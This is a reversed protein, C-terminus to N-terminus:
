KFTHMVRKSETRWHTQTYTHTHTHTHTHKHTHTHTLSLSVSHKLTQSLSLSLSISLSLSLTQTFTHTHRLSLCVPLCVSPFVSLCVSISPFPIISRKEEQQKQRAKLLTQNKIAKSLTWFSPIFDFDWQHM